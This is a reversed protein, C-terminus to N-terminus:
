WALRGRTVIGIDETDSFAVHMVAFVPLGGESEEIDSNRFEVENLIFACGVADKAHTVETDWLDEVKPANLTRETMKCQIADADEEVVALKVNPDLLAVKVLDIGVLEQTQTTPM